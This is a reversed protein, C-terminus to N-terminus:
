RKFWSCQVTLSLLFFVVGGIWFAYSMLYDRVRRQRHTTVAPRAGPPQRQRTITGWDAYRNGPPHLRRAGEFPLTM